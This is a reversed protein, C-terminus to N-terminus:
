TAVLSRLKQVIFSYFFSQKSSREEWVLTKRGFRYVQPGEGQKTRDPLSWAYKIDVNSVDCNRWKVFLKSLYIRLGRFFPSLFIYRTYGEMKWITDSVLGISLSLFIHDSHLSPICSTTWWCQSLCRNMLFVFM